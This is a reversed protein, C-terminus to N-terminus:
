IYLYAIIFYHEFKIMDLLERCQNFFGINHEEALPPHVPTSDGIATRGGESPVLDDAAIPSPTASESEMWSM